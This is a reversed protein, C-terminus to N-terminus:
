LVWRFIQSITKQNASLSKQAINFGCDYFCSSCFIDKHCKKLKLVKDKVRQLERWEWPLNRSAASSLYYNGVESSRDWEQKEEMGGLQDWRLM